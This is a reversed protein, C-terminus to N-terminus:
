RAAPTEAPVLWHEYIEIDVTDHVPGVYSPWLDAQRFRVRYLPMPAGDYMGFGEEEPNISAPLVREVVGTKGRCYFPTRLHGPPYRRVVM